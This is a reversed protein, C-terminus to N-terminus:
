TFAELIGGIINFFPRKRAFEKWTDDYKVPVKKYRNPTGGISHGNSMDMYKPVRYPEMQFHRFIRDITKQPNDALEKYKVCVLDNERVGRLKTKIKKRVRMSRRLLRVSSVSESNFRMNWKYKSSSVARIDREIYIIKVNHISQKYLHLGQEADKSSDIILKANSLAFVKKYIEDNGQTVKGKAAEDIQRKGDIRSLAAFSTEQIPIGEGSLRSIVEGWFGCDTITAGCTCKWQVHKGVNGKYLFSALLSLEGVSVAGPCAALINDLLTSGSRVDSIIYVVQGVM